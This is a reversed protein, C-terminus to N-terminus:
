SAACIATTRLKITWVRGRVVTEVLRALQPTLTTILDAKKARLETEALTLADALQADLRDSVERLHRTSAKHLALQAALTLSMAELAKSVPDGTLNGVTVATAIAARARGIDADLAAEEAHEVAAM